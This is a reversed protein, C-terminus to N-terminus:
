SLETSKRKCSFNAIKQQNWAQLSDRLVRDAGHFNIGNDSYLHNPKGRRSIFRQLACIFFVSSLLHSLEMHVARKTLCTFVCGYRKVRTRGQKILFSGFYDVSTHYFPPQNVQTKEAPLDAMLQKGISSYIIPHKVDFKIEANELRGEV